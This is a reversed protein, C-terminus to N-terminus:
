SRRWGLLVAAALWGCLLKLLGPSALGGLGWVVADQAEFVVDVAAVGHSAERVVVHLAEILM